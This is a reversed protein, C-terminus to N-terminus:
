HSGVANTTAVEARQQMASASSSVDLERLNRKSQSKVMLWETLCDEKKNLPPCHRFITEETPPSPIM